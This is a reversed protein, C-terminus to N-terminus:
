CVCARPYIFYRGILKDKPINLLSGGDSKRMFLGAADLTLYCVTHLIMSLEIADKAKELNEQAAKLEENQMALEVMHVQLEHLLEKADVEGLHHALNKKILM